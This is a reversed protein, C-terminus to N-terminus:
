SILLIYSVELSYMTSLDSMNLEPDYWEAPIPQPTDPDEEPPEYWSADDSTTLHNTTDFLTTTELVDIPSGDSLTQLSEAVDIEEATFSSSLRSPVYATTGKGLPTHIRSSTSPSQPHGRLHGTTSQSQPSKPVSPSPSTVKRSSGIQNLPTIHVPIAPPTAQAPPTSAQAQSVTLLRLM